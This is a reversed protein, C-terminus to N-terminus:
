WTSNVPAAQGDETTLAARFESRSMYPAIVVFGIAQICFWYLPIIWSLMDLARLEVGGLEERQDETLGHFASNKGVQADFTIYSVLKGFTTATTTPGTTRNVNYVSHHTLTRPVSLSRPFNTTSQNTLRSRVLKLIQLPDPYGGMGRDRYTAQTSAKYM